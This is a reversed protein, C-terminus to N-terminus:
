AAPGLSFTFSPINITNGSTLTQDSTEDGVVLLRTGDYLAYHLNEQIQYQSTADPVTAWGASVTLATATNSVITRSQGAGTGAVIQVVKDAYANVTWAKSSDTLTDTGGASATGTDVTPVSVDIAVGSKAAVTVQRVGAAGNGLTFDGAAMAVAATVRMGPTADTPLNSADTLVLPKAKCIVLSMTGGSWNASNSVQALGLDLIDSNYSVESM